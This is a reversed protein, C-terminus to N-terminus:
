EMTRYSGDRVETIFSARKADGFSDIRIPQQGGQFTGVDLIAKKMSSGPKRQAYAEIAVLGADYGALGAFGPPQNFRKRYASEFAKFRESNDSHSIFQALVVGDASKGALEIFRETSAWEAASLSQSPKLKRVQQCIMAADVSNAITLVLDPGPALLERALDSFSDGAGSRFPRTLLVKGGLRRFEGAYGKLWSETYSLNGEDYIVAVTRRGLKTYHYGASKIAYGRTDDIVRLFNDDKGTLDTTTATPSLLVTGSGAVAPLMAMAMSSTMPGIIIEVKEGMLERVAKLAMQPDQGDDRTLLEIRRGKIGGEANRQEVALMVGNRGGVGLDAVRGSIGAVFGLRVPEKKSCGGLLLLLIGLYILHRM